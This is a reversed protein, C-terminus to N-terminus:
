VGVAHIAEEYLAEYQPVILDRSFRARADAAAREAFARHRAPDGLIALAASAMGDIDGVPCLTGTEGESVVEPLGGARSGVM